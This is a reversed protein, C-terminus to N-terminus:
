VFNYSEDIEPALVVLLFETAARDLDLPEEEVVAAVM